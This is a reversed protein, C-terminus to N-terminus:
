QGIDSHTLAHGSVGANMMGVIASKLGDHGDFTTLQDGPACDRVVVLWSWGVVCKM